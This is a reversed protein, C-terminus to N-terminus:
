KPLAVPVIPNVNKVHIEYSRRKRGSVKRIVSKIVSITAGQKGLVMGIDDDAVVISLRRRVGITEETVVVKDPHDVLSRIIEELLEAETLPSDDYENDTM